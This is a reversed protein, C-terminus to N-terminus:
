QLNKFTQKHQAMRESNTSMGFEGARPVSKGRVPLFAFNMMYLKHYLQDRAHGQMCHFCLPLFLLLRVILVDM